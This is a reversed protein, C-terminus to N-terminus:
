LPRCTESIRYAYGYVYEYAFQRTRTRTRTHILIRMVSYTFGMGTMVGSIRGKKSPALRWSSRTCRHVAHPACRKGARAIQESHRDVSASHTVTEPRPSTKLKLTM